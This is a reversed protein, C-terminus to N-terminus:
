ACHYSSAFDILPM